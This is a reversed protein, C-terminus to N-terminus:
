EDENAQENIGESLESGSVHIGSQIGSSTQFSSPDDTIDYFKEETFDVGYVRYLERDLYIEMVVRGNGEVSFTWSSTKEPTIRKSAVEEEGIYAQIYVKEDIDSEVPIRVRMSNAENIGEVVMVDISTGAPVM